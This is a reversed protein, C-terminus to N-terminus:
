RRNVVDQITSQLKRNNRHIEMADLAKPSYNNQTINITSESPDDGQTKAVQAKAVSAQIYAPQATMAAPLEMHRAQREAYSLDLVPTITPELHMDRETDINKLMNNTAEIVKKSFDTMSNVVDAQDDKVGLVFGEIVGAGIERFVRSPSNIGLIAKAGAIAPSIVSTITNVVPNSMIGAKIGAMINSGIQQGASFVSATYAFVANKIATAVASILNWVASTISTENNRLADAMANILDVMLDTGSQALEDSRAGLEDCFKNIIDIVLNTVEEINDSFGKLFDILLGWGTAILTPSTEQVVDCATYIMTKLLEGFEPINETVALLMAQILGSMANKIDETHDGIVVVFNVLAQALSAGLLPLAAIIGYVLALLVPVAMAGAVAIMSLATAVLMMSVAVMAMGLGLAVVTGALVILGVAAFEALYGIGVLLLLAVSLAIVGVALTKPDAQGLTVLAKALVRVGVAMVVLAAAGRLGGTAMNCAIVMGTIVIGLMIVAKIYSGWSM